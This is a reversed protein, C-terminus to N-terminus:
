ARSAHAHAVTVMAGGGMLMLTAVVSGRRGGDGISGDDGRTEGANGRSGDDCGILM